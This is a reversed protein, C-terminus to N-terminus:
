NENSKTNIHNKFEGIWTVIDNPNDVVGVFCGDLQLKKLYAAQHPKPREGPAKLECFGAYGDLLVLRDPIGWEFQASLKIVRMGNRECLMKFKKEIYSERM